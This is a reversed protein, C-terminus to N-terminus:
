TQGHSENWAILCALGMISWLDRRALDALLLRVAPGADVKHALPGGALLVSRPRSSKGHAPLKRNFFGATESKRCSFGMLM